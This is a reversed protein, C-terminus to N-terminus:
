TTITLALATWRQRSQSYRAYIFATKSDPIEIDATALASTLEFCGSGTTTLTLTYDGGSATVEWLGNFGDTSGTPIGLTRNNTITVRYHATPSADTAITAQDTLTAVAAYARTAKAITTQIDSALKDTTVAQDIIQDTDVISTQLSGNAQHAQMLFDNLITGWNGEDGGPQPLRAM